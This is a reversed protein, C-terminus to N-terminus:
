EVAARSFRGAAALLKAGEIQLSIEAKLVTLGAMQLASRADVVEIERAEGVQFRAEVLRLNETALEEELHAVPVAFEATEYSDLADAVEADVRGSLMEISLQAQRRRSSAERAGNILLGGDWIPLSAGIGLWWSTQKDDFGASKDSWNFQSQFAVSPLFQLAADAVMARAAAEQSRAVALDPRNARAESALGAAERAWSVDLVPLPELRGFSDEDVAMVLALARRATRHGQQTERLMRRTREVELQVRLLADRTTLGVSVMAEVDRLHAQVQAMQTEFLAVAEQAGYTGGYAQLVGLLLDTRTKRLQHNAGEVMREGAARMTIVRPSLPWTVEANLFVQDLQQIVLPEVDDDDDGTGGLEGGNLMVDTFEACDAFGNALAIAECDEADLQGSEFMNGYIIGLNEYIGGFAEGLMDNTDGFSDGLDFAIERDNHRWMFGAKIQPSIFAWSRDRNVKAQIVGEAALRLGPHGKLTADLAQALQLRPAASSAGTQTPTDQGFVAAPFTLMLVAILVLSRSM